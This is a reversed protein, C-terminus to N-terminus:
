GCSRGGARPESWVPLDITFCSGQGVVSQVVMRGGLSSVVRHCIALGLGTGGMNQRTTFFPEFIKILRDSPIGQGTDSLKLRVTGKKLSADGQIIIM